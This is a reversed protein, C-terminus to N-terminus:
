QQEASGRVQRPRELDVGVVSGLGVEGIRGEVGREEVFQEPVERKGGREHSEVAVAADACGAQEREVDGAVAGEADDVLQEADVRGRV